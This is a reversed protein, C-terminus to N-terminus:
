CFLGREICATTTTRDSKRLAYDVSEVGDYIKAIYQASRGGDLFCTVVHAGGRKRIAKDGTTLTRELPGPPANELPVPQHTVSCLYM